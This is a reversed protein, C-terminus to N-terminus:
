LRFYSVAMVGIREYKVLRIIPVLDPEKNWGRNLTGHDTLAVADYDLDYHTKVFEHITPYGDSANTHCHPQFKYAGWNDWDVADYPSQITWGEAAAAFAPLCVTFLLVASLLVSLIKKM